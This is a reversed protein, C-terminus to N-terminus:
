AQILDPSPLAEAQAIQRSAALASILVCYEVPGRLAFKRTERNPHMHPEETVSEVQLQSRGWGGWRNDVHAEDALGACHLQRQAAAQPAQWRAALASHGVHQGRMVYFLTVDLESAENTAQKLLM